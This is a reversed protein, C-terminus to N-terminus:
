SGADSLAPTEVQHDPWVSAIIRLANESAYAREAEPGLELLPLEQVLREYELMPWDTGLIVKDRIQTRMWHPLPQYGAYPHALYKPAIAGFELYVNTHRWACAISEMVWPFGGHNAVLTLEPFDCAVHDIWVPRGYDFPARETFNVGTHITVPVHREACYEYLPWLEPENPKMRLFAPQFILGRLGLVEHAHKLDALASGERPDVTAIGGYFLDPRRKLLQATRENLARSGSGDEFETQLVGRVGHKEMDRALYDFSLNLRAEMGYVAGYILMDEPLPVSPSSDDDRLPTKIRFDVILDHM